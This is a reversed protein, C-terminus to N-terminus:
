ARPRASATAAACGRGESIRSLADRAIPLREEDDLWRRLEAGVADPSTAALRALARAVAARVYRRGSLGVRRLVILGRRALEPPAGGLATAVHWLVQEDHSASWYTLQAFVDDPYAPFLAHILAAAVGTRVELARDALLPSVLRLLPDVRDLRVPDAAAGAILAVARRVLPSPDTRWAGLIPYVEDFFRALLDGGAQVAAGRTYRDGDAVLRRLLGLADEPHPSRGLLTAALRRSEVPGPLLRAAWDLVDEKSLSVLVRDRAAGGRRWAALVQEPTM